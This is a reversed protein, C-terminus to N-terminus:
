EFGARRLGDAIHDVAAPNQFVRRVLTEWSALNAHLKQYNPLVARAEAIRGLQGLGAITYTLGSSWNRNLTWGRRGIEVAQEYHRLQYHAAALAALWMFLRPDGPSLRIAKEVLPITEEPQGAYTLM